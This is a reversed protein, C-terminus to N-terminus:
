APPSDSLAAPLGTLLERIFSGARAIIQDRSEDAQVGDLMRHILASGVIVGDAFQTVRRVHDATSIGFGVCIPLDTLTRWDAVQQPLDAALDRREGTVGTVAVYYLFGSSLRAIAARREPATTPTAMMILRLGHKKALEATPAAEEAPLDPVILGDFGAEVCREAFSRPGLRYIISYSAMAALSLESRARFRRVQEFITAVKLNSQLTHYFSSQIVPGDAIPDSFPFGVEVATVGCREMEALLVETSEADPFGATVYPLLGRSGAACLRAFAEDIRNATPSM